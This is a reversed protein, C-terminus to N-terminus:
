STPGAVSTSQVDQVSAPRKTLLLAALMPLGAGLTILNAVIAGVLLVPAALCVAVVEAAARGSTSSSPKSKVVWLLLGPLLLVTPLTVFWHFTWDPIRGEVQSHAWDSVPLSVFWAFLASIAIAM